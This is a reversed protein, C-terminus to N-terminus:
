SDFFNEDDHFLLSSISNSSVVTSFYSSNIEFNTIFWDKFEAIDDSAYIIQIKQPNQLDLSFKNLHHAIGTGKAKLYAEKATWCYYFFAKQKESPIKQLQEFETPHFFRKAIELTDIDQKIYEIDIGVEGQFSVAVIAMEDSHSLNFYLPNGPISPKGSDHIHFVVEAPSINLHFGLIERLRAHAVLFRRRHKEFRFQHLRKIEAPDLLNLLHPLKAEPLNLPIKWIHLRHDETIM